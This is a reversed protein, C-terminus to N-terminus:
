CMWGGSFVWFSAHCKGVNIQVSFSKFVGTFGNQQPASLCSVSLTCICGGM